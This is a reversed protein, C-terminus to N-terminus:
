VNLCSLLFLVSTEGHLGRLGGGADARAGTIMTLIIGGALLNTLVAGSVGGAARGRRRVNSGHTESSCMGYVPEM